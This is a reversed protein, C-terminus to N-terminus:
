WRPTRSVAQDNAHVLEQKQRLLAAERMERESWGKPLPTETDCWGKYMSERVLQARRKVEAMLASVPRGGGGGGAAPAEDGAAEASMAADIYRSEKSAQVRRWIAENRPECLRM